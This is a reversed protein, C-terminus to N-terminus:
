ENVKIEGIEWFQFTCFRTKTKNINWLTEDWNIAHYYIKKINIKKSYLHVNGVMHFLSMLIKHSSHLHGM